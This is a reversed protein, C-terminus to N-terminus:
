AHPNIAFDSIRGRLAFSIEIILNRICVVIVFHSCPPLTITHIRIVVLFECFFVVILRTQILHTIIPLYGSHYIQIIINRICFPSVSCPILLLLPLM